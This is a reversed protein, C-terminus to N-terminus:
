QDSSPTSILRPYRRSSAPPIRAPVKTPFIAHVLCFIAHCLVMSLAGAVTAAGILALILETNM